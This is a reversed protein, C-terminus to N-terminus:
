SQGPQGYQNPGGFQPPQGPFRGYGADVGKPNPGFRNPGPQSDKCAWVILLVLFVIGALPIFITLFWLGSKDIDHLRRWTVALGPLLLALGVLGGFLGSGSSTTTGAVTDLVSAVAGALFSFLTWYWYESRRARGSFTVYKSFGTKVATQVNM